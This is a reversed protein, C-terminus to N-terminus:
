EQLDKLGDFYEQMTIPIIDSADIGRVRYFYQRDYKPETNEYTWHFDFDKLETAINETTRLDLYYNSTLFKLEGTVDIPIWGYEALYIENWAHEVELEKDEENLISFIPIGGIYKAPIGAARCLAAYLISYDQCVGKKIELLESAKYDERKKEAFRVYDYEFNDIVFNYLKEAIKYPDDESGVVKKVVDKIPESDSDILKQSKLYKDLDEETGLQHTAGSISIDESPVFQSINADYSVKISKAKGESVTGLYYKYFINGNKDTKEKFDQPDSNINSIQQFPDITAPIDMGYTVEKLSGPGNNQLIVEVEVTCNYRDLILLNGSHEAVWITAIASDSASGATATLTIIYVGPENYTYSLEEGERKEGNGLDWSFIIKKGAQEEDEKLKKNPLEGEVKFSVPKGIEFYGEEKGNQSIKMDMAYSNQWILNGNGDDWHGKEISSKDKLWGEIDELTYTSVIGQNAEGLSSKSIVKSLSDLDFCCSTSTILAIILIFVVPLIKLYFKIKM